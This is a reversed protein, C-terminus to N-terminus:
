AILFKRLLGVKPLAIEGVAKDIAVAELEDVDVLEHFFPSLLEEKPIVNVEVGSALPSYAPLCIFNRGEIDKGYLVVHLKVRDFGSRLVVAPQEHGITVFSVGSFNEPIKHGHVFLYGSERHEEKIELGLKKVISVLFNDHNGRVIIIEKFLSRLKEILRKVEFWEQSTASGFEHKLDGNVLIRSVGAKAKLEDLDDLILKLQFEPIYIKAEEALYQEEGLQLDSIAVLDLEEFLVARQGPITKVGKFIEM